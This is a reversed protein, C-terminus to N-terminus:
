VERDDAALRQNTKAFQILNQRLDRRSPNM